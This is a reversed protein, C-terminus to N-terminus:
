TYIHLKRFTIEIVRVFVTRVAEVRFESVNIM